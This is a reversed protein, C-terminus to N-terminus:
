LNKAAPTNGGEGRGPKVVAKRLFVVGKIEFNVQGTQKDLREFFFDDVRLAFPLVSLDDAFKAFAEFKGETQISIPLECIESTDAELATLSGYDPKLSVLTLGYKKAVPQVEDVFNILDSYPFIRSKRSELTSSLSDSQMAISQILAEPVDKKIKEKLASLERKVKGIKKQTPQHYIFFWAVAGLLVILPLIFGTQIKKSKM